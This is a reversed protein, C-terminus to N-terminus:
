NIHMIFSGSTYAHTRAHALIKLCMRHLWYMYENKTTLVMVCVIQKDVNDPLKYKLYSLYLM